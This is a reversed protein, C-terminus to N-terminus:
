RTLTNRHIGLLRAAEGLSGASRSLVRAIFRREFERRADEFRVGREVMEEILKELQQQVTIFREGSLTPCDVQLM